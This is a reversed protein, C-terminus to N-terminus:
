IGLIRAWRPFLEFISSGSTTAGVFLMRGNM